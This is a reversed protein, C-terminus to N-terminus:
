EGRKEALASAEVMALIGARMAVEAKARGLPTEGSHVKAALEPNAALVTAAKETRKPSVRMAAAAEKQAPPRHKHGAFNEGGRPPLVEEGTAPGRPKPNERAFMAARM